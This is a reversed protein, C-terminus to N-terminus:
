KLKRKWIVIMNVINAVHGSKMPREMNMKRVM